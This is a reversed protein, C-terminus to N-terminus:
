GRLVEANSVIYTKLWRAIKSAESHMSYYSVDEHDEKSPSCLCFFVLQTLSDYVAHYLDPDDGTSRHLVAQSCIAKANEIDTNTCTIAVHFCSKSENEVVIVTVEPDDQEPTEMYMNYHRGTEHSLELVCQAMLSYLSNQTIRLVTYLLANFM